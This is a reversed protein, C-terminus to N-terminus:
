VAMFFKETGNRITKDNRPTLAITVVGIATRTKCGGEGTFSSANLITM